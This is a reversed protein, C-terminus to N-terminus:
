RSGVAAVTVAAGLIYRQETDPGINNATAEQHCVQAEASAWCYYARVRFGRRLPAAM